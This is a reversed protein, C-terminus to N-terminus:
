VFNELATPLHDTVGADGVLCLFSGCVKELGGERRYLAWEHIIELECFSKWFTNKSVM